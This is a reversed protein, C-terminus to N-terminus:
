WRTIRIVSHSLVSFPLKGVLMIVVVPVTPLVPQETISRNIMYEFRTQLLRTQLKTAISVLLNM